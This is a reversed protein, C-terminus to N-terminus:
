SRLAGGAALAPTTIEEITGPTFTHVRSAWSHEAFQLEDEPALIAVEGEASAIAMATGIVPWYGSLMLVYSPLTCLVADLSERNRMEQIRAIRETGESQRTGSSGM